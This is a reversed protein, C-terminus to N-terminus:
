FDFSPLGLDPGRLGSTLAGLDPALELAAIQVFNWLCMYVSPHAGEIDFGALKDRDLMRSTVHGDHNSLFTRLQEFARYLALHTNKTNQPQMGGPWRLPEARRLGHRELLAGDWVQGSFPIGILEPSLRRLMEFHFEERGRAQWGSNFSAKLLTANAFIYPAFFRDNYARWTRSVWRGSRLLIRHQTPIQAAELGAGLAADVYARTDDINRDAIGQAFLNCKDGNAMHIDYWKLLSDRSAVDRLGAINRLGSELGHLQIVDTQRGGYTLDHLSMEGETTHVHPLIKDDMKFHQPKAVSTHDVFEHDLGLADCVMKAARVEPSIAPGNTFIRALRERRGGAAILGLLLRSDKGGSLPFDIPKDSFDLVATSAVLYDYVDDWYRKPANAYQRQLDDDSLFLYDANGVVIRGDQVMVPENWLINRVGEFMSDSNGAGGYTCIWRAFGLEPLPKDTDQAGVAALMARSALVDSGDRHAIYLPYSCVVSRAIRVRGNQSVSLYFYDGDYGDALDPDFDVVQRIPKMDADLPYGVLLAFGHRDLLLRDSMLHVPHSEWWYGTVAIEISGTTAYTLKGTPPYACYCSLDFKPHRTAGPGVKLVFDMM